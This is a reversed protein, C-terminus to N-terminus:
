ALRKWVNMSIPNVYLELTARLVIAPSAVQLTQALVM